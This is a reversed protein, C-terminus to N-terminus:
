KFAHAKVQSTQAGASVDARWRDQGGWSKKIRPGGKQHLRVTSAQAQLYM